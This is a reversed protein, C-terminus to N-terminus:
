YLIFRKRDCKKKATNVFWAMAYDKENFDFENNTGKWITQMQIMYKALDEDSLKEEWRLRDLQVNADQYKVKASHNNFLNLVDDQINQNDNLRQITKNGVIDQVYAELPQQTLGKDKMRELTKKALKAATLMLQAQILGNDKAMVNKLEELLKDKCAKQKPTYSQAFTNSVLMLALLISLLSKFYM